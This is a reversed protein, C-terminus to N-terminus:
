AKKRGLYAVTVVLVAFGAVEAFPSGVTVVAGVYTTLGLSAAIPVTYCKLWAFRNRNKMSVGERGVATSDGLVLVSPRDSSYSSAAAGLEGHRLGAILRM